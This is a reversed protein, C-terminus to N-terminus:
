RQRQQAPPTLQIFPIGSPIEIERIEDIIGNSRAYDADKTQAQAFLGEIVQQTLQTREAFIAGIRKHETAIGALLDQLYKEELDGGGPASRFGVGHFTFTAHRSAYREEGALFVANGISAVNGVNHTIVKLPLGRIM